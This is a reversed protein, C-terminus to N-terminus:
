EPFPSSTYEFDFLSSFPTSPKIGNERAIFLNSACNKQDPSLALDSPLISPDFEEKEEKRKLKKSKWKGKM